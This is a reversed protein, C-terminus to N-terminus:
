EQGDDLYDELEEAEKRRKRRRIVTVTIIVIILVVAAAGAGVMIKTKVPMGTEEPIVEMDGFDEVYPEHINLVIPLKTETVNGSEDEYTIKINAEGENVQGATIMMDVNGTAGPSLNGIFALAQELAPDDTLVQVNYLTTKGTNFINFMVDSQEGIAIDSPEVELSGTDFKSIQKVPISVTGTSEYPNAKEDEYKMSITMVYPKQELGAKAEFRMTLQADGGPAISDVYFSNSGSTPLFAAYSAQTTSGEVTATLDMQLNKITVESSTNQVTLKLDFDSGSYIEAPETTFGKVILRPTSLKKGEEEGDTTGNEPKGETHVFSSITTTEIVCAPNTYTVKFDMKYYGTKVNDRTKFCWVCNQVREAANPIQDEGVLTAIKETYGTTEIEFPWEDTKAAVVPTVVVDQLNYKFMNVLPLVVYVYEGHKAQPTVWTNGPLLFPNTSTATSYRDHSEGTSDSTGATTTGQTDATSNASTALVTVTQTRLFLITVALAAIIYRIKKNEM